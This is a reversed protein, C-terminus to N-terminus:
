LCWRRVVDTHFVRWVRTKNWCTCKYKFLYICVIVMVSGDWVCICLLLMVRYNLEFCFDIANDLNKLVM